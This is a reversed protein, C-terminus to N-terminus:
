LFFSMPTGIQHHERGLPAHVKKIGQTPARGFLDQAPRMARHEGNRRHTLTEKAGLFGAM